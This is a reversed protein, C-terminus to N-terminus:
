FDPEQDRDIACIGVQMERMIEGDFSQLSLADFDLREPWSRLQRLAQEEDDSLDELQRKAATVRFLEELEEKNESYREVRDHDGYTAILQYGVLPAETAARTRGPFMGPSVTDMAIEIASWRGRQHHLFDAAMMVEESGNRANSFLKHCVILELSRIIEGHDGAKVKVTPDWDGDARAVEDKRLEINSDLCIALAPICRYLAWEENSFDAESPGLPFLGSDILIRSASLLEAAMAARDMEQFALIHDLRVTSARRTKPSLLRRFDVM